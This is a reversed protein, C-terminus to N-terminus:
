LDGQVLGVLYRGYRVLLPDNLGLQERYADLADPSASEGLALRAPDATSLSMVIFVLLTVGLVMIPLAVIRRGLLRILTSM